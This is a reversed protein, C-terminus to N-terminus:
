AIDHLIWAHVEVGFVWRIADLQTNRIGEWGNCISYIGKGKGERANGKWEKGERGQGSTFRSNGGIM